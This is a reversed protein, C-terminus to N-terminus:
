EQRLATLPDLRAARVAPIATACFAVVVLLLAVLVFTTPDTASVSYLQSTMLRTLALAGACGIIVGAITLLMGQRLVLRLVDPMAAGLAMRVGLERQRQNVLQSMVGYIGLAALGVALGAFLAILTMSLRRQGLSADLLETMTRVDSIPQDPDVDHIASRVAGTLLHPDGTTRVAFSLQTV